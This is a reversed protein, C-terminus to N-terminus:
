KVSGNRKEILKKLPEDAPALSFSSMEDLTVWEYRDHDTLRIEGGTIKAYHAILRVTFEEYAYVSEGVLGGAEIEINMEELLEREVAEAASEGKEIKGGPFEWLGELPLGKKKRAIFIRNKDDVMVAAAVDIM